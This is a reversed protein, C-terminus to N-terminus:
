EAEPKGARVTPARGPECDASAAQQMRMDVRSSTPDHKFVLLTIIDLCQHLCVGFEAPKILMV